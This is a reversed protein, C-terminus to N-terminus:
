ENVLFVSVDLGNSFDALTAWNCSDGTHHEAEHELEEELERIVEKATENNDPHINITTRVGKKTAENVVQRIRKALKSM